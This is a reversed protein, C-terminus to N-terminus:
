SAEATRQPPTPRAQSRRRRARRLWELPVTLLSPVHVYEEGLSVLTGGMSRKFRFIGNEPDLTPVGGFDYWRVGISKLHRVTEWHVLQGEGRSRDSSVGHLFIATDGAVYTLNIVLPHGESDASFAMIANGDSFMQEIGSRSPLHLDRTLAMKAYAAFFYDFETPAPTRTFRVTTGLSKAKNINRKANSQLRTQLEEEDQSLDFVITDSNVCREADTAKRFVRGLVVPPSAAPLASFDHLVVVALRPVLALAQLRAEVDAASRGRSLVLVKQFPGMRKASVRLGPESHLCVWGLYKERVWNPRFDIPEFGELLTADSDPADSPM